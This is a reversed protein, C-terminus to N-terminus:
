EMQIRDNLDTGSSPNIGPNGVFRTTPYAWRIDPFLTFEKLIDEWIATETVRRKQPDCLYRASLKVGYQMVSEYVIPTLYQFHILYLKSAEKLDHEAPQITSHVHKNVITTVLEKAKEWNSEFTLRIELENWIYHFGQTYNAQPETFVKGNPIHIIRGTSQDANVWNGIELISFQYLRLDIVDGQHPGIQIRDGIVFPKRFLIFLWGAMNALLDKLAIAIGASLLGLFAGLYRFAHIWLTGILILATVPIIYSIVRKGLYRTKVDETNKWVIRLLLYRLAYLFTLIAVSIVIKEQNELSIGTYNQIILGLNKM